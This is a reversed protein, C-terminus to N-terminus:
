AARLHFVGSRGSATSRVLPVGIALAKFQIKLGGAEDWQVTQLNEGNVWSAVDPSDQKMIVNGSPLQDAVKIASIGNVKLLRERITLRAASTSDFDRDLATDADSPVYITYPGYFRDNILGQKAVLVDTLFSAGTKTADDWDKTDTFASVNRDPHTMYGYIVLSGFQPGGQFLMKELQEVVTRGAVRVNTTDLAEGRERSAALKRLNIFFDKHTIPLPIQSLDFEQTDNNTKALGDLSTAAADMDTVREYGVVMKGLANPVNVVHGASILDGVGVLRIAGEEVLAADFYKWEDHRLTDLTRLASASLARGALAAAKLQQTAWRGGEFLTQAASIMENM